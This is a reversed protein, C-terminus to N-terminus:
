TLGVAARRGHHVREKRAEARGILAQGQIGPISEIILGLRIGVPESGIRVAESVSIQSEPSEEPAPETGTGVRVHTPPLVCWRDVALHLHNRRAVHCQCRWLTRSGFGGPGVELLPEKVVAVNLAQLLEYMEVIRAILICVRDSGSMARLSRGFFYVAPGHWLHPVIDIHGATIKAQRILLLVLDDFKQFCQRVTERPRVEVAISKRTSAHLTTRSRRLTVLEQDRSRM